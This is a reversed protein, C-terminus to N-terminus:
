DGSPFAALQTFQSVNEGGIVAVGSLEVWAHAQFGADPPKAVGIRLRADYGARQLLTRAALAQVLCNV